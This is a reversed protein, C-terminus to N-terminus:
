LHRIADFSARGGGHVERDYADVSNAVSASRYDSPDEIFEVGCRHMAILRSDPRFGAPMLKGDVRWRARGRDASRQASKASTYGNRGLPNHIRVQLQSVDPM